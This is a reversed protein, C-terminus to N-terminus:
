TRGSAAYGYGSTARREVFLQPKACPRGVLQQAEGTVDVVDAHDSGRREVRGLARQLYAPSQSSMRLTSRQRTAEHTHALPGAVDVPQPIAARNPVPDGVDDVVHHSREIRHLHDDEARDGPM